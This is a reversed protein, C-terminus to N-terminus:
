SEGQTEENETVIFDGTMTAPHVDCRFFYTGPADPAEFEYTISDPGTIIEGIFISQEAGPSEYLAFNHRIGRDNNQLEVVVKSGAPVSIEQVDFENNEAVLEITVEEGGPRSDPTQESNSESDPAPTVVPEPCATVVALAIVLALLLAPFNRYRSCNKWM